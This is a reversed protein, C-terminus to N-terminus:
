RVFFQLEVFNVDVKFTPPAQQPAGAPLQQPASISVAAAPVATAVVTITQM